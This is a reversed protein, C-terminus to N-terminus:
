SCGALVLCKICFRFDGKGRGETGQRVGKEYWYKGGNKTYWACDYAVGTSVDFMCAKGGITAEGKVMKGNNENYYYYIQKGNRDNTTYWGKVMAGTVRMLVIGRM